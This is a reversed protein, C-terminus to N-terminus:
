TYTCMTAKEMDSAKAYIHCGHPIVTNKYTEYIHHSKESSRRSQANQIKDKIKKLYRDSWSLLSSHISKTSSFCECGCVVKYQAATQKLKPPLLSCLTSDSIIINGDEDRTGKLGGNNTDSVLSNHLERVSMQLLLKPALQLEASYRTAM